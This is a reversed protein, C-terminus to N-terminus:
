LILATSFPTRLLQLTSPMNTGSANGAQLRHELANGCEPYRHILAAAHMRHPVACCAFCLMQELAIALYRHTLGQLHSLEAPGGELVNRRTVCAAQPMVNLSVVSTTHIWSQVHM